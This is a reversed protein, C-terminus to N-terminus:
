FPHYLYEMINSYKQYHYFIDSPSAATGVHKKKSLVPDIIKTKKKSKKTSKGKKSKIKKSKM